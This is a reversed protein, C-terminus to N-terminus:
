THCYFPAVEIIDDAATAADLATGIILGSGPDADDVEGNDAGYLTAGQTIAANAIMKVTGGACLLQVPVSTDTAAASRLAVGIPQETADAEYVADSSLRVLAYQTIAEGPAFAKIGKNYEAM